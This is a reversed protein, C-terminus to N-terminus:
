PTTVHSFALHSHSSLCDAMRADRQVELQTCNSTLAVSCRGDILTTDSGRASRPGWAPLGSPTTSAVPDNEMKWKGNPMQCKDDDASDIVKELGRAQTWFM